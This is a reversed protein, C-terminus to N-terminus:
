ETSQIKKHTKGGSKGVKQDIKPRNKAIKQGKKGEFVYSIIFIVLPIILFIGIKIM